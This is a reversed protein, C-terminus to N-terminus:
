HLRHRRHFVRAKYRNNWTQRRFKTEWTLMRQGFKSFARLECVLLHLHSISLHLSRPSYYADVNYRDNGTATRADGGNVLFNYLAADNRIGGPLRMGMGCIAVPVQKDPLRNPVSTTGNATGNTHGNTYGNSIGDSASGNTHGNPHSKHGNTYGNTEM